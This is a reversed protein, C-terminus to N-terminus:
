DNLAVDWSDLTAGLVQDLVVQAELYDLTADLHTSQAYRLDSEFSLVQFNSSRGSALKEQEIDLKRRSLALAREAIEMQRWRVQIDRVAGTVERQLQQRSEALSLSQKDAAVQARVWAQRRSLDGIPVELELGLYHEWSASKGPRERLQSAGGVLSLDWWQTNRAVQLDIAAQEGTVLQMLYAPQLAEARALAQDADVQLREVRLSEVARLPTALDIALLQALAQRSQQLQNRSGERALEQNAVEAQTQVIDFAAMRGATILARNVEVLQRSRALGEDAIRLQEQARLLGRYLMITRSIVHSVDDKLALRNLQEALRAHRLPASAIDHGAGRLLPQIIMFNAGDSYRRGAGDARTHGYAWDLSLRTGYPTLLSAAPNLQAERYRDAHNRNGLYRAKLSLQPMFQDRAVRLEFKQAIRELYASRVARNDRLALAIADALEMDVPEGHMASLASVPSAYPLAPRSPLLGSDAMALLPSMLAMVLWRTM